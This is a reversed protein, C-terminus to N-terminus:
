ARRRHRYANAKRCTRCHRDGNHYYTNIDDFPHGRLCHTKKANIASVGTGRLINVKHTVVELHDVNVCRRNRCLHDITLGDPIDEVLFEYVIRHVRSMKCNFGVVGYGGDNTVGTWEWCGDPSSLDIRDLVHNEFSLAPRQCSYSCFRATKKNSLWPHFQKGCADCTRIVDQARGKASRGPMSSQSQM